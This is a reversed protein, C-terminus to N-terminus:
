LLDITVIEINEARCRTLFPDIFKERTNSVIPIKYQSGIRNRAKDFRHFTGTPVFKILPVDLRMIPSDKDKNIQSITTRKTKYDKAAQAFTDIKQVITQLQEPTYTTQSPLEICREHRNISTDRCDDNQAISVSFNERNEKTDKNLQKMASIAHSASFEEGGLNISDNRGQIVFRLPHISCISVTDM